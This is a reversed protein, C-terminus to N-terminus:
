VYITLLNLSKVKTNIHIYAENSLVKVGVVLLVEFMDDLHLEVLFASIWFYWIRKNSVEAKKTWTEMM